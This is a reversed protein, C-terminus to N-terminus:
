KTEKLASSSELIAAIFKRLTPFYDPCTELNQHNSEEPWLPEVPNKALKYLTKGHVIDIVEDQLGHMILTPSEVKPILRYNAFVDAWSPWWTMGPNLVRMGSLLPAHLVVGALKPHKSALHVTPGSGVSQGYVVIDEVPTNYHDQLHQICADADALTNLARPVGTSSGYGSYDYGAVHCGIRISLEKFFPLM